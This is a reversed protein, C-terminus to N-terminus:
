ETYARGILGAKDGLFAQELERMLKLDRKKEHDYGLVHLFGHVFLIQGEMRYSHHNRKAQKRLTDVSIYIEGLLNAEAKQVKRQSKTEDLFSFSLVDTPVNKKRYTKNLKKMERDSLFIVHLINKRSALRPNTKKLIRPALSLLVDTSFGVHAMKYIAVTIQTKM